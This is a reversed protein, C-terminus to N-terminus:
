FNIFFYFSTIESVDPTKDCGLVFAVFMVVIVLEQAQIVRGAAFGM